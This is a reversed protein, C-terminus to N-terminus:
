MLRMYFSVGLLVDLVIAIEFAGIWETSKYFSKPKDKADILIKQIEDHTPVNINTYQQYKFWSIITQCSRYACGWGKDNFHDQM